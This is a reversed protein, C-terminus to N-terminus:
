SIKHAAPNHSFRSKAYTFVFICILQVTVTCSILAKTLVIGRSDLDLIKLMQLKTLVIGRSELDLIKLMQLQVNRNTDSRSAVWCVPKRM